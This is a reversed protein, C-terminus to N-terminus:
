PKNKIDLLIVYFFEKEKDRLYIGYYESVYNVVDDPNKLKQKAEALEKFFRRGIELAAKIQIAKAKGIGKIKCLESLPASYIKRLSGFNNILDRAVEEASVGKRGTRLIIAFLKGLPLNEMGIKIAMERPREEKVWKNIPKNTRRNASLTKIEERLKKCEEETKLDLKQLIEKSKERTLFEKEFCTLYIKGKKSCNPYIEHTSMFDLLKEKESNTNNM